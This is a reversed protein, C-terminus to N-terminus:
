RKYRRGKWVFDSTISRLAIFTNVLPHLLAIIPFWKLFQTRQMFRSAKYILWFDVLFKLLLVFIILQQTVTYHLSYTQAVIIRHIGAISIYMLLTAMVSNALFVMVGVVKSFWYRYSTSKAAWRTRQSIFSSWNEQPQTTIIANESKLYSVRKYFKHVFKELLFHDDGSAIHSNKAYGAVEIFAQKQYALHAGNCLFPKGIGFGGMTAGMLSLFDLHEFINLLSPRDTLEIRVPGIIMRPSYSKIHESLIILWDKPFSCDADTTVVWEFNSCNIATTIADKKPSGSNRENPISSLPVWQNKVIFEQIIEESNDQSDDNVLLIEYAKKPYDLRKICELLQPLHQTENRFPIILSFCVHDNGGKQIDQSQAVVTNEFDVRNCAIAFVAILICYPVIILVVLWIM